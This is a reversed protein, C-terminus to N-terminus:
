SLGSCFVLREYYIILRQPMVKKKFFLKSCLIIWQGCLLDNMAELLSDVHTSCLSISFHAKNGCVSITLVFYESSTIFLCLNQISVQFERNLFCRLLSHCLINKFVFSFNLSFFLVFYFFLSAFYFLFILIHHLSSKTTILSRSMCFIKAEDKSGADVGPLECRGIVGAGLCRAMHTCASVHVNNIYLIM